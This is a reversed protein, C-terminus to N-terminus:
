GVLPTFQSPKYERYYWPVVLWAIGGPPGFANSAAQVNAFVDKSVPPYLSAANTVVPQSTVAIQMPAAPNISGITM